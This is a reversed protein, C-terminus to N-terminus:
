NYSKWLNNFGSHVNGIGIATEIKAMSKIRNALGIGILQAEKALEMDPKKNQMTHFVAINSGARSGILCKHM